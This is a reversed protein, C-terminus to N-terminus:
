DEKNETKKEELQKVMEVAVDVDTFVDQQNQTQKDNDMRCYLM